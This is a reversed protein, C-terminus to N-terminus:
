TSCGFMRSSAKQHFAEINAIERGRRKGAEEDFSTQEQEAIDATTVVLQQKGADEGIADARFEILLHEKLLSGVSAAVCSRMDIM